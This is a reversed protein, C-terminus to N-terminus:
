NPELLTFEHRAVPWAGYVAHQPCGDLEVLYTGDWGFTQLGRLESEAQNSGLGRITGTAGVYHSHKENLRVRRGIWEQERNLYSIEPRCESMSRGVRAALYPRISMPFTEFRASCPPEALRLPPQLKLKPKNMWGGREDEIAFSCITHLRHEPFDAQALPMAKGHAEERSVARIAYLKNQTNIGTPIDKVMVVSVVFRTMASM